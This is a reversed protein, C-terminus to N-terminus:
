INSLQEEVRDLCCRERARERKAARGMSMWARWASLHHTIETILPLTFMHSSLYNEGVKIKHHVVTEGHWSLTICCTFWRVTIALAAVCQVDIERTVFTDSIRSPYCITLDTNTCISFTLSATAPKRMECETKGSFRNATLINYAHVSCWISYRNMPFPSSSRLVNYLTHISWDASWDHHECKMGVLASYCLPWPKWNGKSKNTTRGSDPLCDKQKMGAYILPWVWDAPSISLSLQWLSSCFLCLLAIQLLYIPRYYIPWEYRLDTECHM